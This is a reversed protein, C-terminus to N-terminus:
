STAGLPKKVPIYNAVTRKIGVSSPKQAENSWFHKRVVAESHTELSLKSGINKDTMKKTEEDWEYFEVTGGTTDFDSVLVGTAAYVDTDRRGAQTLVAEGVTAIGEKFAVDGSCSDIILQVRGEVDHASDIGRNPQMFEDSVLRKIGTEDLYVPNHKANPQGALSQDAFLRFGGTKKDQGFWTSGPTGHAAMVMTSPKVAHKKMLAMRRYFDGPSHIEFILSRGRPKRYKTGLSNFAGNHDGDGDMFIVTVDGEQLNKIYESDGRSLKILSDIDEPFYNDFNVIGFKEHVEKIEEIGRAFVLNYYINLREKIRATDLYTPIDNADRGKLRSRSSYMFKSSMEDPVGMLGFVKTIRKTLDFEHSFIAEKSEDAPKEPFSLLAMDVESVFPRIRDVCKDKGEEVTDIGGTSEYVKALIFAHTYADEQTPPNMSLITRIPSPQSEDEQAYLEKILPTSVYTLVNLTSMHSDDKVNKIDYLIQRQAEVSIMTRLLTRAESASVSSWDMVAVFDNYVESAKVLAALDDPTIMRAEETFLDNMFDRQSGLLDTVIAVQQERKVEDLLELGTMEVMEGTQAIKAGLVGIAAELHAATEHTELTGPYAEHVGYEVQSLDPENYSHSEHHNTPM